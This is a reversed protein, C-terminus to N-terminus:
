LLIELMLEQPCGNDVLKKVDWPTIHTHIVLADIFECEDGLLEKFRSRRNDIQKQLTKRETRQEVTEKEKNSM